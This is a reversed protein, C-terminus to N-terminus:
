QRDGRRSDSQEETADIQCPRRSSLRREGHMMTWAKEAWRRIHWWSFRESKVQLDNAYVLWRTARVHFSGPNEPNLDVAHCPQFAVAVEVPGERWNAVRVPIPEGVYFAPLREEVEPEKPLIKYLDRKTEANKQRYEWGQMGAPDPRYDNFPGFIAFVEAESLEEQNASSYSANLQRVTPAPLREYRGIITGQRGVTEIFGLITGLLVLPVSFAVIWVGFRCRSHTV